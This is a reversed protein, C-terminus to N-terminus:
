RNIRMPQAAPICYKPFRNKATQIIRHIVLLLGCLFQEFDSEIHRDLSAGGKQILRAAIHQDGILRM